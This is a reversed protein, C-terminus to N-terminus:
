VWYQPYARNKHLNNYFLSVIVLIISGVLTPFVLYDWNAGLLFIILPNSGAPPHVTKTAMMLAIATALALAMSIYDNGVFHLFILGILSSLFHGFIVNKPQSFPSKPFGFLLVCSAGFSGMVLLNNYNKTLYGIIIIAIFSGVFAFLIDKFTSNDVIKEKKGIFKKLYNNM